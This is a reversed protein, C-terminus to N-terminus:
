ERHSCGSQHAMMLWPLARRVGETSWSRVESVGDDSRDLWGPQGPLLFVCLGLSSGVSMGTLRDRDECGLIGEVGCCM